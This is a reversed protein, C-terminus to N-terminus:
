IYKINKFDEMNWKVVRNTYEPNELFGDLSSGTQHNRRIKRGEKNRTAPHKIAFLNHDKTREWKGFEVSGGSNYFTQELVTRNPQFKKTESSKIINKIHIYNDRIFNHNLIHLLEKPETEVMEAEQNADTYISMNWSKMLLPIEEGIILYSEPINCLKEIILSIIYDVNDIDYFKKTADFDPRLDPPILFM